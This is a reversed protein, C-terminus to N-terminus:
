KLFRKVAIGAAIRLVLLFFLIFSIAVSFGALDPSWRPSVFDFKYMADPVKKAAQTSGHSSVYDEICQVRTRGSFGTPLQQECHVQADRYVADNSGQQAKTNEAEQLRQYTYKLQIPPYVGDDTSLQTNMHGYVHSRLDRLAGEVDGNTEDAKYVADRLKVMTLNNSRLALVAITSTILLAALLYWPKVPKVRRWLYEIEAKDM